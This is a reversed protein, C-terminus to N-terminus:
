RVQYSNGSQKYYKVCAEMTAKDHDFSRELFIYSGCGMAWGAGPVRKLAAKLSIKETTLLVPDM